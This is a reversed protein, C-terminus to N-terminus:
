NIGKELQQKLARYNKRAEVVYLSGPHVLFIQEYLAMAKELNNLYNKNLEAQLFLAKDALSEYPYLSNIEELYTDAEQWQKKDFAIQYRMLLVDDQIPHGSYLSKLSDLIQFAEEFKFQKAALEANAFMRIPAEVSDRGLNDTIFLSLQMADNAILKSTSAKLIDLQAQSWRFDGNFYSLKANKLKATHGLVDDKFDKDVQSYLLSAEWIEGDLLLLDALALKANAKQQTTLNPVLMLSDLVQIGEPVKQVKQALFKAQELYFNATAPRMRIENATTNFLATLQVLDNDTYASSLTKEKQVLTKEILALDYIKGGESLKAAEEFCQIAIDYAKNRFALSGLDFVRVGQEGYRMDLAKTQVFAKEFDNVQLNLWIFLESFVPKEPNKQIKQLILRRLMDFNELDEEFNIIRVLSNQISSQYGPNNELLNLYATLMGQLDGKAGYLNAIQYAFAFSDGLLKQGEEYTKIAYDIQNINKFANALAYIQSRNPELDKLLKDFTSQAKKDKGTELYLQGLDVQYNPNAGGVKIQKKILKEAEAYDELGLLAKLYDNYFFASPNQDYIKEFYIAAKKYEGNELYYRALEIDETSQAAIPEVTIFFVITVLSYFFSKLATM